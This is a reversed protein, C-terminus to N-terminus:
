KIKNKMIERKTTKKNGGRKKNRRGKYHKPIGTTNSISEGLTLVSAILKNKFKM